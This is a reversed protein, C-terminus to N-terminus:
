RFSTSMQQSPDLTLAVEIEGQISAKGGAFAGIKNVGLGKQPEQPPVQSDCGRDCKAM